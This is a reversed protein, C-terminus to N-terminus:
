SMIGLLKAISVRKESLNWLAVNKSLPRKGTSSTFRGKNSVHTM